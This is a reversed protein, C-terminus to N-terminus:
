SGTSSVGAIRGGTKSRQEGANRALAFAVLTEDAIEETSQRSTDYHLVTVPRAALFEAFTQEFAARYRRLIECAELDSKGKVAHWSDRARIRELLIADPADLWVVMDINAIWRKLLDAWWRQYAPSATIAPGFERLFALRYIPGHDLVIVKDNDLTDRKLLRLGAQLYAMSRTERRDFWRSRRYRRLYTLLLLLTNGVVFPIKDFKSLCRNIDPAIRSDRKRLARSLTTKGTGAPGMVEVVLPARLAMPEGTLENRLPRVM